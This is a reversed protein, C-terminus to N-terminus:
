NLVPVCNVFIESLHVGMLVGLWKSDGICTIKFWKVITKINLNPKFLDLWQDTYIKLLPTHALSVFCMALGARSGIGVWRGVWRDEWRGVFM